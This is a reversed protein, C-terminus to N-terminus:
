LGIDVVKSYTVLIKDKGRGVLEGIEGMQVVHVQEHNALQEAYWQVNLPRTRGDKTVNATQTWGSEPLAALVGCYLGRQTRFADFSPAFELDTYTTRKAYTRPQDGPFGDRGDAIRHMYDGWTNASARLHALVPKGVVGGAPRTKLQEPTLGALACCDTVARRCAAGHDTRQHTARQAHPYRDGM